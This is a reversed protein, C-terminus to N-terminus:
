KECLTYDENDRAEAKDENESNVSADLFPSFFTCSQLSGPM